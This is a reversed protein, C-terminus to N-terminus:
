NTFNFSAIIENILTSSKASQLNTIIFSTGSKTVYVVDTWKGGNMTDDILYGSLKTATVGDVQVSTQSPTKMVSKMGAISTAEKYGASQVAVMVGKGFQSNCVASTSDLIINQSNSCSTLTYKKDYTFSYKYSTNTYTKKSSTNTTGATNTTNGNNTTTTTTTDTQLSWVFVGASVVAAGVLASLPLVNGRRIRM